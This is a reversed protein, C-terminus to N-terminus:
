LGGQGTLPVALYNWGDRADLFRYTNQEYEGPFFVVLRGKVLSAVAEVLDSIRAFGFLGVTGTLALCDNPGLDAAAEHVRGVLWEVFETDLINHLDEPSAFYAERYEQQQMWQTFALSLDVAKWGHGAKATALEFEGVLEAMRREELKNYVLFIVREKASLGPKWPLTVLEEYEALLRELRSM